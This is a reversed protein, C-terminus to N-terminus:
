YVGRMKRISQLKQNYSSWDDNEAIPKWLNEIEDILLTCPKEGTIYAHQARKENAVDFKSLQKLLSSEYKDSSVVKKSHFDFFMDEFNIKNKEM